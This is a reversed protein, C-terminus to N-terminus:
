KRASSLPVHCQQHTCTLQLCLFSSGTSATVVLLLRLRSGGQEPPQEVTCFNPEKDRPLHRSLTPPSTTARAQATLCFRSLHYHFASFHPLLNIPILHVLHYINYCTSYHVFKNWSIINVVMHIYRVCCQCYQVQFSSRYHKRSLGNSSLRRRM